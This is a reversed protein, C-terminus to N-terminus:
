FGKDLHGSTTVSPSAGAILLRHDGKELDVVAIHDTERWTDVIKGVTFVLGKGEPLYSPQKHFEGPTPTTLPM